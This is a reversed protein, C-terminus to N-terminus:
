RQDKTWIQLCAAGVPITRSWSFPFIQSMTGTDSPQCAELGANQKSETQHVQCNVFFNQCNDPLSRLVHQGRHLALLIGHFWIGCKVYDNKCFYMFWHLATEQLVSFQFAVLENSEQSYYLDFIGDPVLSVVLFRKIFESVVGNPCARQEHEWLIPLFESLSLSSESYVTEHRIGSKEYVHQMKRYRRKVSSRFGDEIPANDAGGVIRTYMAPVGERIAEIRAVLIVIPLVLRRIPRLVFRYVLLHYPDVYLMRLHVLQVIGVTAGIPVFMNGWVVVPSSRIWVLLLLSPWFMTLLVLAFGLCVVSLTALALLIAQFVM